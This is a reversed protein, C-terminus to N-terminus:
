QRGAPVPDLAFLERLEAARRAFEARAPSDGFAAEIAQVLEDVRGVPVADPSLGLEYLADEVVIEGVPGLLDVAERALERPFRPDAVAVAVFAALGSDLLEAAAEVVESLPRGVASSLERLSSAGDLRRWLHLAALSLSVSEPADRAGGREVADGVEGVEGLMRVPGFPGDDHAGAALTTAREERRAAPADGSLACLVTDPDVAGPVPEDARRTAELLLRETAVDITARPAAVGPRFAFRGDNWGLLESLAAVDYLPRADVFVVRGNELYVYAQRRQPHRLLLCGSARSLALYQLLDALAGPALRGSLSTM